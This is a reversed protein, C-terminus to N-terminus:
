DLDTAKMAEFLTTAIIPEAHFIVLSLWAGFVIALLMRLGSISVSLWIFRGLYAGAGLAGLLLALHLLGGMLNGLLWSPLDFLYYFM